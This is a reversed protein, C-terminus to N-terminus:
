LKQEHAKQISQTLLTYIEKQNSDKLFDLHRQLTNKDNRLAPGTQAQLPTLTNIKSATERILPKLIDFSIHNEKCIRSGIGYLHNTFNGVFVAAVHLSQRQASDIRYVSNALAYGLTELIRYDEKHESELCIPVTSFDVSKNKTFTQLPYFVGRRNKSDLQDLSASGSTHVVLKGELPLQSSVETIADDSVAIIYVDAESLDNFSNTIKEKPLLHSLNEPHRAFAQVLQVQVIAAFAKILHQAVNGSGIIVVQLMTALNYFYFL